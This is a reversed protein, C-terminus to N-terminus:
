TGARVGFYTPGFGGGGGNGFAVSLGKDDGHDRYDELSREKLTILALTMSMTPKIEIHDM